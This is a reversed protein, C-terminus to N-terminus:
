RRTFCVFDSHLYKGWSSWSRDTNWCWPKHKRRGSFISSLFKLLILFSNKFVCGLKKKLPILNVLYNLLDSKQWVSYLFLNICFFSGRGLPITYWITINTSISFFSNSVFCWRLLFAVKILWRKKSHSGLLMLSEAVILSNM